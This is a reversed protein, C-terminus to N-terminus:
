KSIVSGCYECRGKDDPTTTAGCYPCIMPGKTEKQEQRMHRLQLYKVIADGDEKNRQCGMRDRGDVTGSNLRFKLESFYPSDVQIHVDFNYSYEYRRPNYSVRNGNQDQRMVERRTEPVDLRAGTIASFSILDPNKEVFNQSDCLVFAGMKEDVYLKPSYGFCKVPHFDALKERNEERYELQERIQEVTSAKRENFFPSLKRACDGCLNGDVLQKNGLLSIKEGCISCYKKDFLGM